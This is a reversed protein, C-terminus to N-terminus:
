PHALELFAPVSAFRQDAAGQESASTAATTQTPVHEKLTAYNVGLVNATRSVGYRGAAIAASAWLRDPIRSGARRTRRWEEFRRRVGELRAPLDGAKRTDM